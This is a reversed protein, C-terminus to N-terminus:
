DIPKAPTGVVVEDSSIDSTVTAGAGVTVNRGVSLRQTTASNIGFYCKEGVSVNGGINVGPALTTFAEINSEHGITTNKNIQVHGGIKVNPDIKAGPYIISGAGVTTNAGIWSRPHYLTAFKHQSFTQCKDVVQKRTEPDSIAISVFGEPQDFVRDIPGTIKASHIEEGHKESNDDYVAAIEWPCDLKKIMADAIECALQGVGGAGIIYLNESM